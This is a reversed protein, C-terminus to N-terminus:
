FMALKRKKKKKKKEGKPLLSILMQELDSQKVPCIDSFKLMQRQSCMCLLHLRFTLLSAEYRLWEVGTLVFASVHLGCQWM